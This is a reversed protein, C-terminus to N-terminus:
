GNEKNIEITVTDFLNDVCTRAKLAEKEQRITEETVKKAKEELEKSRASFDKLRQPQITKDFLWNEFNKFLQKIKM